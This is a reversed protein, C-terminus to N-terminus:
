LDILKKASESPMGLDPRYGLYTDDNTKELDTLARLARQWDCFFIYLSTSKKPPM